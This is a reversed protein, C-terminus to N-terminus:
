RVELQRMTEENLEIGLGPAEPVHVVGDRPRIPAKALRTRLPQDMVNFELFPCDSLVSILHMTAAVLIDSSWCHPIVRVGRAEALAAIRLCETIGGARAVDPQVIRLQGRDMLDLFGFRTTEKEGTAIPTPSQSVLQRWGEMDDPSLPEELFYVDHEAYAQGAWVADALPIPMGLDVMIAISPGVARRVQRAREVDDELNSGLKGWGIKVGRYGAATHRRALEVTEEITPPNLDSAYATVSKRRVEGLLQYVPKGRAKGLIDWLAIDIGSIANIALGRRGYSQTLAYMRDWLREIELPDEGLLVEKLGRSSTHYGACDIIARAALPNTHVEGIGTIGADTLVEVVLLDQLNDGNVTTTPLKLYRTRIDTIKM